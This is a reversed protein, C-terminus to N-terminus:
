LLNLEKCLQYMNKYKESEPLYGRKLLDDLREQATCYQGGQLTTIDAINLIDLMESMYPKGDIMRRPHIKPYGHVMIEKWWVFDVTRLFEVIEPYEKEYLKGYSARIVGAGKKAHGEPLDCWEYGIDHNWGMLFAQEQMSQDYGREKALEACRRAVWVIHEVREKVIGIM